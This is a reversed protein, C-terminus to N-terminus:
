DRWDTLARTGLYACYLFWKFSFGVSLAQRAFTLAQKFRLEKALSMAIRKLTDAKNRRATKCILSSRAFLLAKDWVYARFLMKQLVSVVTSMNQAKAPEPVNHRSVVGPFYRIGDAADVIRLYFDLDNEYRINEDLGGVRDFLAKLVITTNFHAFGACSMLDGITVSYSGSSDVATHAPVTNKLPELWLPGPVPTEGLVADQNSFYIEARANKLSQFARQLHEPDTWYDDDDLFCLYQGRAEDAGRNAAGSSGHGNKTRELNLFRVKGRLESALDAYAQANEGDSGDNVILVEVNPHSQVLVSNIARRLLV